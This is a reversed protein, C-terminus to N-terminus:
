AWPPLSPPSGSLGEGPGRGTLWGLVKRGEGAVPATVLGFEGDDLDWSRQRGDPLDAEIHLPPVDARGRLQQVADDLLLEVLEAPVDAVDFGADLDILHLWVERLNAVKTAWAADALSEAAHAFRQSAAVLDETLLRLPRVAGEEIDADRDAKSAYMPHEVGTRAWTLLNVLGDANRALHTIVHARSWGPLRSSGRAAADDLGDVADVLRITAPGVAAVGHRAREASRQTLSPSAGTTFVAAEGRTTGTVDDEGVQLGDFLHVVGVV